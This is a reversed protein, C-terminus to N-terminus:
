LRRLFVQAVTGTVQVDNAGGRYVCGTRPGDSGSSPATDTEYVKGYRRGSPLPLREVVGPYPRSLSPVSIPRGIGITSVVGLRRDQYM